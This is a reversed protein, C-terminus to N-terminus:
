CQMGKFQTVKEAAVDLKKVSPIDFSLELTNSCKSNNEKVDSMIHVWRTTEVIIVMCKM